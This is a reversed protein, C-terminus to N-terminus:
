GGIAAETTMIPEMLTGIAFCDGFIAVCAVREQRLARRDIHGLRTKLRLRKFVRDVNARVYGFHFARNAV